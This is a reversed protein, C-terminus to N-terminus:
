SEAFMKTFLWTALIKLKTSQIIETVYEKQKKLLVHFIARTYWGVMRQKNPTRSKIKQRVTYSTEFEPDGQRWRRLALYCEHAV